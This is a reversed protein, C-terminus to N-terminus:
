FCFKCHISKCHIGCPVVRPPPPPPMCATDCRLKMPRAHTIAAHASTCRMGSPYDPGTPPYLVTEVGTIIDFKKNELERSRMHMMRGYANTGEMRMMVGVPEEGTTQFVRSKSDMLEEPPPVRAKSDWLKREPAGPPPVFDKPITTLFDYGLHPESRSNRMLWNQKRMHAEHAVQAKTTEKLRTGAYVVTGDSAASEVGLVGNPFRKQMLSILRMQKHRDRGLVLDAMRKQKEYQLIAERDKPTMLKDQRFLADPPQVVKTPPVKVTFFEFKEPTMIMSPEHPDTAQLPAACEDDRVVKQNLYTSEQEARIKNVTHSVARACLSPAWQTMKPVPKPETDTLDIRKPEQWPQLRMTHFGGTSGFGGGTGFGGGVGGALTTSPRFPPAEQPTFRGGGVSARGSMALGGGGGGNYDSGGGFGSLGGRHPHDDLFGNLADPNPASIPRSNAIKASRRM